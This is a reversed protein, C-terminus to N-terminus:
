MLKMSGPSNIILVLVGVLAVSFTRVTGRLYYAVHSRRVLPPPADGRRDADLYAVLNARPPELLLMSKFQLSTGPWSSHLLDATARFEAATLPGLPHYLAAASKNIPAPGRVDKSCEM